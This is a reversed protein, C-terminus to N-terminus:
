PVSTPSSAAQAVDGAAGVRGVDVVRRAAASPPAREGLAARAGRVSARLSADRGRTRGCAHELVALEVAFGASRSAAGLCGCVAGSARELRVVDDRSSSRM